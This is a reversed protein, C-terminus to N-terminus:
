LSANTRHVEAIQYFCSMITPVLLAFPVAFERHSMMAGYLSPSSMVFVTLGSILLIAGLFSTVAIVVLQRNIFALAACGLAALGFLIWLVSGHLGMSSLLQVVTAGGVVAGLIALSFNVPWYSLAALAVGCGVAYRLQNPGPGALAAGIALGGLGFAIVVCVRWMRWGFLMLAAGGILLPLGVIMNSSKLFALWDNLSTIM